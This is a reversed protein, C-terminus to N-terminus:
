CSLAAHICDQPNEMYFRIAEEASLLPFTHTIIKEVPYKRSNLIKVAIDVEWPQAFGGRLQLEKYVILDTLLNVERGACTGALVFRGLPKLMELGLNFAPQAGSCEIVVDAMEGETLIKLAQVPDEKEVDITFEAGLERSLELRKKDKTLGLVVIRGAGAEKGAIVSALGQAGPGIIVLTEQFRVEGKSRVWRVGNGIVSSLCAAEQPVVPDIKHVRAGPPVYLFEAFAGWLHPPIASSISVGYARKNTCFQYNGTLCYRCTRCLITPEVVVRDGAQLQRQSAAEEGIEAVQGTMEHGLIIPYPPAERGAKKGGIYKRPDSGCISVMEVKLLMDQPGIQPLDFERPVMKYPSELVMALAKKKM